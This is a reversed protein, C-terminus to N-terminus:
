GTPLGDAVQRYRFRRGHHQGLLTSDTGPGSAGIRTPPPHNPLVRERLVHRVKEEDPRLAQLRRRHRRTKTPTPRYSRPNPLNVDFNARRKYRLYKSYAKCESM